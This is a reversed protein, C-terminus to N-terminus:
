GGNCSLRTIVEHSGTACSHVPFYFFACWYYPNGPLIWSPQLQRGPLRTIFKTSGDFLTGCLFECRCHFHSSHKTSKFVSMIYWCKNNSVRLILTPTAYAEKPGLCAATLFKVLSVKTEKVLIECGKALRPKLGKQRFAPISDCCHKDYLVHEIHLNSIKLWTWANQVEMIWCFELWKLQKNTCKEAAFRTVMRKPPQTVAFRPTTVSQHSGTSWTSGFSGPFKTFEFPNTSTDPILRWEIGNITWFEPVGTSM